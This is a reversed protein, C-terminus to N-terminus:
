KRPNGAWSLDAAINQGSISPHFCDGGDIHAAGFSFNGIGPTQADVYEAVVEIGRPNRGNANTDYAIAEERLIENYRRQAIQIAAYRTALSEGNYTGGNTAIECVNFTSWVTTCEINAAQGEKIVGAARLDQVRPVSNLYVTAGTNLSGVLVDLGDRVATRWQSETYLPDGCSAPNVCGRSCIDNGGLTVVVLDPLPSQAVIQLAQGRFNDSGGRMEAGDVAASKNALIFPDELLYRDHMSFVNTAEGDFFSHEPQDGGILCALCSIGLNCTCDAAFAQTISDGAAAIRAPLTM